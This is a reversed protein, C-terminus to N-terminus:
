FHPALPMLQVPQEVGEVFVREGVSGDLSFDGDGGHGHRSIGDAFALHVSCYFGAKVISEELAVRLLVVGSTPDLRRFLVEVRVADINLDAFVLPARARAWFNKLHTIQCPPVSQVLRVRVCPQICAHCEQKEASQQNGPYTPLGQKKKKQNQFSKRRSERGEWIERWAFCGDSITSRARARECM